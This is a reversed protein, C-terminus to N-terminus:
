GAARVRRLTRIVEIRTNNCRPCRVPVGPRRERPDDDDLVQAEFQTGCMQCKLEKVVMAKGKFQAVSDHWEGAAPTLSYYASIRGSFRRIGSSNGMLIGHVVGVPRLRPVQHLVAAALM